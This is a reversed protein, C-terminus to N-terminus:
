DALTAWNAELRGRHLRMYLTDGRQKQNYYDSSVALAPPDNVPGWPTVHLHYRYGKGQAIYKDNVHTLYRATYQERWAVNYTTAAALGYAAALVLAVPVVVLLRTSQALGRRSGLLLLAGFVLSVGVAVPWLPQWSLFPFNIALKLVLVLTPAAIATLMNAHPDDANPIFQMLGQNGWLAAVAVLPVALAVVAVLELPHPYFLTWTAILIAVVNLWITSNESQRLSASRISTTAGLRSDQLLKDTAQARAQLRRTRESADLDPVHAALLARVQRYNEYTKEILIDGGMDPLAELLIYSSNKTFHESFGKIESYLLTYSKGGIEKTVQGPGITLCTISHDGLVKILIWVFAAEALAFGLHAGVAHVGPWWITVLFGSFFFFVLWPAMHKGFWSTSPPYFKHEFTDPAPQM